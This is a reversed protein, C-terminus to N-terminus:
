NIYVIQLYPHNKIYTMNEIYIIQKNNNNLIFKLNYFLSYQEFMGVVWVLWKIDMEKM